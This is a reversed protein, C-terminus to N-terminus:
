VRIVVDCKGELKFRVMIFGITLSLDFFKFSRFLKRGKFLMVKIELNTSFTNCM